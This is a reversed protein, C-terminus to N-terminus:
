SCALKKAPASALQLPATFATVFTRFDGRILHSSSAM